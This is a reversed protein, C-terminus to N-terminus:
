ISETFLKDKVMSLKKIYEESLPDKVEKLQELTALDIGLTRFSEKSIVETVGEPTLCKHLIKMKTDLVYLSTFYKLVIDFIQEESEGSNLLQFIEPYYKGYPPEEHIGTFIFVNKLNKQVILRENLSEFNNVGNTHALIFFTDKESKNSMLNDFGQYDDYIIYLGRSLTKELDVINLKCNLVPTDNDLINIQQCETVRQYSRPNTIIFIFGSNRM